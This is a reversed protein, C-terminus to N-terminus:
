ILKCPCDDPPHFTIIANSGKRMVLLWLGGSAPTWYVQGKESSSDRYFKAQYQALFAHLEKVNNGAVSIVKKALAKAM